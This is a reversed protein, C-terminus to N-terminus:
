IRLFEDSERGRHCRIRMPSFLFMMMMPLKIRDLVVRSGVNKPAEQLANKKATGSCVTARFSLSCRQLVWVLLVDKMPLWCPQLFPLFFIRRGGGRFRWPLSLFVVFSRLVFLCFFASERWLCHPWLFIRLITLLLLVVVVLSWLFALLLFFQFLALEFFGSLSVLFSCRHNLSFFFKNCNKWLFLCCSKLLLLLLFANASRSCRCVFQLFASCLHCSRCTSLQHLFLFELIEHRAYIVCWGSLTLFFSLFFSRVFSFCGVCLFISLIVFLNPCM